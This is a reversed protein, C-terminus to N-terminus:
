LWGEWLGWAAAGIATLGAADHHLDDAQLGLGITKFGHLYADDQDASWAGVRVALNDDAAGPKDTIRPVILHTVHWADRAAPAFAELNAEFGVAAAHDTADNTGLLVLAVDYQSFAYPGGGLNAMAANAAATTSAFMAGTDPDWEDALKTGGHVTDRGKVIWLYGLSGSALFQNAIEVEAGWVTPHNPTGTNVGPNMYNWADGQGDGNTDAWIQVRVTPTYPAPGINGYGLAQSDGAVIMYKHDM